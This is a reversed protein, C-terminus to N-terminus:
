CISLGEGPFRAAREAARDGRIRGKSELLDVGALTLRQRAASEHRMSELQEENTEWNMM